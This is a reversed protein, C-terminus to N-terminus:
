VAKEELAAVVEEMQMFRSGKVLVSAQEPLDHTLVQILPDKAAFWLGTAGFVEAAEVSEDGVFYAFEIGKDRAYQGIERHMAAAETEGLEGMDGMVFVRPTPMKALVDLAAKMSDPNANYTDDIITANRQGQKMQLRGKITAFKALGSAIETLSLGAYLAMAACACANSVNHLGAVPLHVLEKDEAFCLDFQSALPELVINEAHVDGQQTGFRRQQWKVCAAQFIPLHEDGAPLIALGKPQLGAYIESKARAIDAVGNFGCGIHARMANNVLAVNPKAIETLVALEGFHNMGMEIVAYRHNARLNLLTLPVGIHNNLNGVTALVADDGFNTRLVSALMEKVTTKGSSGTIGFVVPNLYERWATALTQLALLTDEVKLCGSLNVCDERSVVAYAGKALVDPVFDHADFREGKLAFFVDGAMVARGDTTIKGIVKDASTEPLRLAQCIFSYTLEKMNM